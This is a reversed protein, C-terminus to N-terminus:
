ISSIRVAYIVANLQPIYPLLYCTIFNKYTGNGILRSIVWKLLRIKIVNKKITFRYDIMVIYISFLVIM